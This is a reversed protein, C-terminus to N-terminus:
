ESEVVKDWVTAVGGSLNTEEISHSRLSFLNDMKNQMEKMEKGSQSLTVVISIVTVAFIAACALYFIGRAIGKSNIKKQEREISITYNDSNNVRAEEKEEKVPLMEEVEETTEVIVEGSEEQKIRADLADVEDWISM